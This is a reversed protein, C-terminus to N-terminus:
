PYASEKTQLKKQFVVVFLRNVWLLPEKARHYIRFLSHSEEVTQKVPVGNASM